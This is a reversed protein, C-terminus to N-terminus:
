RHDIALVPLSSHNVLMEVNSGQFLRKIPHRVLNSIGILKIDFKEAFHRIGAEISYDSYFHTQCKFNDRALDKFDELLEMMLPAPQNFWGGTNVSLIHVEKAKCKGAFRLFEVFAEKDNETLNSPFMVKDFNLNSIPQKIVLVNNRIKRVVKQTNSGIFWEQKGSAGYSGMVILDFSEEKDFAELESVFSGFRANHRFPVGVSSVMAERERILGSINSEIRAKLDKLLAKDEADGALDEINESVHFLTVEGGCTLAIQCAAQLAFDACDSFDSPVIIKM